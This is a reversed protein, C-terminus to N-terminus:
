LKIIQVKICIDYKFYFLTVHNSFFANIYQYLVLIKKDCLDLKKDKTTQTNRLPQDTPREWLNTDPLHKSLHQGGVLHGLHFLQLLCSLSYGHDTVTNVVRRGQGHSVHADGYSGPCIHGYLCSIHHQDPHSNSSPPNKFTKFEHRQDVSRSNRLMFVDVM